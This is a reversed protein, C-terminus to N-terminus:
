PTFMEDAILLIHDSFSYQCTDACDLVLRQINGTNTFINAGRNPMNTTILRGDFAPSNETFNEALPNVLCLPQTVFVCTWFLTQNCGLVTQNNHAPIINYKCYIYLYFTLFSLYISPHILYISISRYIFRYISLSISVSCGM